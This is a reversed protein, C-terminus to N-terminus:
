RSGACFLPRWGNELRTRAEDRDKEIPVAFRLNFRRLSGWCLRSKPVPLTWPEGLHNALPTGTTVLRFIRNCPCRPRPANPPPTRSRRRRTWAGVTHWRRGCDARSGAAAHCLQLWFAPVASLADVMGKRDTGGSSPSACPPRPVAAESIWNFCVLPRCSGGAGPRQPRPRAAARTQVTKGLGMDDALCAGMGLRGAPEDLPLRRAPDGRWNRRCTAPLPRDSSTDLPGLLKKGNWIPRPFQGSRQRPRGAGAGRASSFGHRRRRRGRRLRAARGAAAPLDTLAIDPTKESRLHVPRARPAVDGAAPANDIVSRRQGAPQRSRSGTTRPGCGASGIGVSRSPGLM